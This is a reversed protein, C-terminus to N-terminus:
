CVFKASSARNDGIKNNSLYADYTGNAFVTHDGKHDANQYLAVTCGSRNKVSSTEDNMGDGSDGGVADRWNNNDFDKDSARLNRWHDGANENYESNEYLCFNGSSCAGGANLVGTHGTAPAATAPLAVLGLGVTATTALLVRIVTNRM